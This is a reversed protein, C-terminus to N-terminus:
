PWDKSPVLISGGTLQSLWWYEPAAAPDGEMPFLIINMAAKQPIRSTATRFHRLREAASATASRPAEAGQTPLGDVLLYVNDPRPRLERIVEVAAHLSTGGSPAIQSLERVAADLRKPEVPLWGRTDSLIPEAKTNFGYIQFRADAPLQATLWNVTAVTRQWKPARLQERLPLNRSRIVNVLTEDLMSASRDVLILIHRGDVRLGTLYQRDGEGPISRVRSGGDVPSGGAALRAKEAELQLLEREIQAISQGRGGAARELAELERRTESVASGLEESRVQSLQERLTRLEERTRAVSKTAEVFAAELSAREGPLEGMALDRELNSRATIIVFLLIIAGFGNSLTDLFSFAAPVFGRNRAM